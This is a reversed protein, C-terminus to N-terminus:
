ARFALWDARIAGPADALDGATQMFKWAALPGRRDRLARAFFYRPEPDTPAQRWARVHQWYGLRPAGLNMALRGALIRASTGQWGALPGWQTARTHAKLSLGQNYCELIGALEVAPIEM